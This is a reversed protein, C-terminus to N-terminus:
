PNEISDPHLSIALKHLKRITRCLETVASRRGEAPNAGNKREWALLSSLSHELWTRLREPDRSRLAMDMALELVRDIGSDELEGHPDNLQTAGSRKASSWEARRLRRLGSPPDGLVTAREAQHIHWLPQRWRTEM